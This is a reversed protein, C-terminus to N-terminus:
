RTAGSLGYQAHSTGWGDLQNTQTLQCTDGTQVMYTQTVHVTLTLQTGTGALRSGEDVGWSTGNCRLYYYSSGPLAASRDTALDAPAGGCAAACLPVAMVLGLWKIKM